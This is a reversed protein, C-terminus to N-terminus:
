KFLNKQEKYVHIDSDIYLASIQKKIKMRSFSAQERTMGDIARVHLAYVHREIINMYLDLFSFLLVILM